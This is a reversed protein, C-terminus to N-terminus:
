IRVCWVECCIQASIISSIPGARNFTRETQDRASRPPGQELIRATNDHQHRSLCVLGSGLRPRLFAGDPSPRPLASPLFSLPNHPQCRLPVQPQIVAPAQRASEM